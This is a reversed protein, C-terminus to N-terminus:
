LLAAGGLDIGVPLLEFQGPAGAVTSAVTDDQAGSAVFVIVAPGAGSIAAAVGAGRLREVLAFSDPYASARYRQHLYDQTAPLLLSPDSTFAHICLAARSSPGSPM